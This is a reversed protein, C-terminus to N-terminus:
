PRRAGGEDPRVLVFRARGDREVLLPVSADEGLAEIADRIEGLTRVPQRGVRRIADGAALGARAAPGGEEVRGIVLAGEKEEGDEAGLGLEAAERASLEEVSLGLRALASPRAPPAPRTSGAVAGESREALTADIRRLGGDRFVEIGIGDGPAAGGVTAVLEGPSRVRRDGISVIVDGPELGAREAPSGAVVENVVIGGADGAGLSAALAADLPQVAVGLYGRAVRGDAILSAAVREVVASPVAFGIGDNGGGRSSIAANIGIIEGDLNALPGGSNGPNIAADTQLYNEFTALGVDSRGKASVIGATVTQELGFPAGIAVVWEGTELRESDGFRAPVLGSAGTRLVAIDTGPDLGVVEARATRGDALVIEIEDAGAVVHNATVIHGDASIVVGTGTGRAPPAARPAGQPGMPGLGPMGPMQPFPMRPGAAPEARAGTTNITVVSPSLAKAAARFARSLGNAERRASSEAHADADGPIAGAHAAGDVGPSLLLMSGGAILAGATTWIRLGGRARRADHSAHTRDHM